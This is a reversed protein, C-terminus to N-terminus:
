NSVSSLAQCIHNLDTETSHNLRHEVATDSDVIM